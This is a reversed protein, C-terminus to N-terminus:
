EPSVTYHFINGYYSHAIKVCFAKEGIFETVPGPLQNTSDTLKVWYTKSGVNSFGASGVNSALEIGLKKNIADCVEDRLGTIAMIIEPQTSTGVGQIFQNYFRVQGPIPHGSAPMPLDAADYFATSTLNGGREAFVSCESLVTCNPNNMYVPNGSYGTNDNGFNIDYLDIEDVMRLQTVEAKIAAMYNIIQGAYLYAKDDDISHNDRGSMTFAYSLAAFLGVGILVLVLANGKQYKM